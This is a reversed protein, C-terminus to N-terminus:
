SVVKDALEADQPVDAMAEMPMNGEPQRTQAQLFAEIKNRLMGVGQLERGEFAGRRSAIDIIQVVTAMDQLNIGGPNEQPQNEDM